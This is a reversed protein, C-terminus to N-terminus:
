ERRIDNGLFCIKEGKTGIIQCLGTQAQASIIRTHEQGGIDLTADHRVIWKDYEIGGPHPLQDLDPHFATTTRTRIQLDADATFVTALWARNRKAMM